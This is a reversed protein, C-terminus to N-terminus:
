LISWNATGAFTSGTNFQISNVPAAPSTSGGGSGGSIQIETGTSTIAISGAVTLTKFNINNSPAICAYLGTGAGINTAAVTAAGLKIASRGM